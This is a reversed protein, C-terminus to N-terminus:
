QTNEALLLTGHTECARLEGHPGGQTDLTILESKFMGSTARALYGIRTLTYSLYEQDGRTSGRM